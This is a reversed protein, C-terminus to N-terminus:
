SGSLQPPMQAWKELGLETEKKDVLVGHLRKTSRLAILTLWDGILRSEDIVKKILALVLAVAPKCIINM